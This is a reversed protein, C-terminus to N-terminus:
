EPGGIVDPAVYFEDNRPDRLFEDDGEFHEDSPLGYRNSHETDEDGHAGAGGGMMGGSGGARGAAAPRKALASEEAAAM